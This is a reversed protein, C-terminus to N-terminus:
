EDEYMTSECKVGTVVQVAKALEDSEKQTKCGYYCIVGYLQEPLKRVERQSPILWVSKNAPDIDGLVREKVNLPDKADYCECNRLYTKGTSTWFYDVGNADKEWHGTWWVYGDEICGDTYVEKPVKFLRVVQGNNLRYLEDDRIKLSV